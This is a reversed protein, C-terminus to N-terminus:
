RSVFVLSEPNDKLAQLYEIVFKVFHEYKGWGNPSNWSKYKNPNLVLEILGEQIIYTIDKAKAKEFLEEPRWLAKHFEESVAKAMLSLNHTINASYNSDKIYVDLSM